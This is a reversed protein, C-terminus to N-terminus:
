HGQGNGGVDEEIQLQAEVKGLGQSQGTDQGQGAEAHDGFHQNILSAEFFGHAILYKGGHDDGLQNGQENHPKGYALM